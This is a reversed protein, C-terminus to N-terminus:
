RSRRWIIILSCCVLRISLRVIRRRPLGMKEEWQRIEAAAEIGDQCGPTLEAAFQNFRPRRVKNPMQVDLLLLNIRACNSKYADVAQQGDAATDFAVGQSKLTLLNTLEPTDRSTM